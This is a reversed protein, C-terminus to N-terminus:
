EQSSNLFPYGTGFYFRRQVIDLPDSCLDILKLGKCPSIVFLNLSETTCIFRFLTKINGFSFGRDDLLNGLYFPM